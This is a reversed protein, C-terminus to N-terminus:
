PDALVHVLVVRTRRGKERTAMGIGLSRFRPELLAALHAPSQLIAHHAAAPDPGEGLNEGAIRFPYGARRLRDGVKGSRPSHHAFRETAILEDAYAQAVADLRPDRRLPELGRRRRLAALEAEMAETDRPGQAAASGPAPIAEGVYVHGLLAVEPGQAGVGMVEIVTRGPTRLHLTAEFWPGDREVPLRVPQGGPPVVHLQPHDLGGLLRGRLRLLSGAPVQTPVAEAWEVAVRGFIAIVAHNGDGLPASGLGLHTPRLGPEGDIRERLRRAGREPDRAIVGLVHPEGMWMGARTIALRLARGDGLPSLDGAEAAARAMERAAADLRPDQVLATAVLAALLAHV